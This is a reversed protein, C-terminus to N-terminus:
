SPPLVLKALFKDLPIAPNGEDMDFGDGGHCEKAYQWIHIPCTPAPDPTIHATNWPPLPMCIQVDSKWRAVWASYCEAGQAVARELAQWSAKDFNCYLGPLLTVADSSLQKSYSVLTESWGTWYEASLTPSPAGEDDLYVYFEGGQQALYQIGFAGLIALVNGKADVTGDDESGHIHGTQRALPAVRVGAIAFAAHETKPNYQTGGAQEPTKFYRGWFRPLGGYLGQAHDLL